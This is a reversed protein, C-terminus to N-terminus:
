QKQTSKLTFLTLEPKAAGIRAPFGVEGCGINVYLTMPKGNEPTFSYLGSWQDYRYKSPSWMWDGAKLMLQMAHTHGALSLDINSIKTVVQSWHEPNHTLLIKFMNDNLGKLSKKSGPYSKGLDGLQKFPPEGWNEVGIVVISDQGARIFATRNNLVEWGMGRMISDLRAVDRNEDDPNRWRVYSAYDHNGHVAIVGHRAELRKLVPIFPDLESSRRNVMDGTFVILDANSSNISDVLKSVFTTDSGWTGVHADSFQMVKFGDFSRPLRDSVIDVNNTVIDHRTFAAGWWIVSFVLISLPVGAMVGFNRGGVAFVRGILSCICYVFKPVYISLITFIMWMLALISHDESKRPLSLAVVIGIWCIISFVLYIRFSLKRRKEPVYRRIDNLIYLDSVVASLILM